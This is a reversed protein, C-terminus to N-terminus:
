KRASWYHFWWDVTTKWGDQVCRNIQSRIHEEAMLDCQGACLANRLYEIDEARSLEKMGSPIMQFICLKNDNCQHELHLPVHYWTFCISSSIHKHGFILMLRLVLRGFSESLLAMRYCLLKIIGNRHRLVYPKVKGGMVHVFDPTLVFPVRERKIIKQGAQCSFLPKSKYLTFMFLRLYLTQLTM